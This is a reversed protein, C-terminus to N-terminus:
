SCQSAKIKECPQLTDSLVHQKYMRVEQKASRKKNLLIQSAKTGHEVQKHQQKLIFFSWNKEIDTDTNRFEQFAEMTTKLKKWFLCTV